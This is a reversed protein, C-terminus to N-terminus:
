SNKQSVFKVFLIKPAFCPQSRRVPCYGIYSKPTDVTHRSFIKNTDPLNRSHTQLSGSLTQVTESPHRSSETGRIANLLVCETMFYKKFVNRPVYIEKCGIKTQYLKNSAMNEGIRM